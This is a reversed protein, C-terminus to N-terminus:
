KSAVCRYVTKKVVMPTGEHCRREVDEQGIVYGAFGVSFIFLIVGLIALPHEM